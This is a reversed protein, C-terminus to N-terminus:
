ILIQFLGNVNEFQIHSVLKDKTQTEQKQLDMAIRSVARERETENVHKQSTVLMKLEEISGRFILKM